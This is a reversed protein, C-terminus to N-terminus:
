KGFSSVAMNGAKGFDNWMAENNKSAAGMLQLKYNRDMMYKAMRDQYVKDGEATMGDQAISLQQLRAMQGQEDQTALGLTADNAQADAMAAVALNQSSNTSNRASFANTNASNAQVGAYARQMGPTRGNLMTQAMALRDKQQQSVEYPTYVPNIAAAAKRQKKANIGKVVAGTLAVGGAIIAAWAM